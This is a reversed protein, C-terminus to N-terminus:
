APAGRRYPAAPSPPPRTSTRAPSRSPRPAPPPIREAPGGVRTVAVACVKFAPMRSTPDLARTPSPTPAPAAAGTSPRSSSTPGSPTPSTPTSGPAAAAPPSSSSTTRRQHRARRALDPHLEARPTPAVLALSRTRRTQTGSQYQAMCGAPPSLVPLRRRTPEHADVHEVRLFRARGDPTAFREAFLRPTGPHNTTRARGSSARSTTSGATASAPTTPRAARRQGPAARRLRDRPRRQVQRRRRAPRRADALLQLDDPVGAPPDLARRRRIVRGELNTMTGDEEAWMASPLVVDALEATESLFFDSVALFDLDGCGASSGAPTPRASRSTPRWCWCRACAATPASRTSCSSPAVQGPMPLDDPDIGWVAAVHARAAPDTSRATAPCSTPRRGTSAAARGTARAPSPAGAAAPRGPLGLALALNIWAQATDTGSRHQEAGRATLIIAKEARALAFVTRRQDAVPVGTIREVRDPWYARSAPGAGRRLRHHADAVYAEDVLGEAIAIHLLGNALALDTGPLPQLHLAANRATATRRPDVVVHQAGRAAARTSTSCPRRCPTPRTAAWWSSSTPPPSTARAPVAHRPRPRVGPQGRGRGLVHLLPRQLRHRQHAARGPRVQRVPLGARQDALRRRLLRRRRPRARGPHARDRRGAPRAGDDWTSEVLPSTRDGPVARVLPRLLREPHDLLETSSWGKSCLGGRNTPFDAPVLTAPRDGATVAM